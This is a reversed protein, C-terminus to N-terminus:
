PLSSAKAGGISAPRASRGPQTLRQAFAYRSHRAAKYFFCNKESSFFWFVKAREAVGVISAMAPIKGCACFIFTKQNKEESFFM